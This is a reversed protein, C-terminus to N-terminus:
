NPVEQGYIVLALCNAGRLAKETVSGYVQRENGPRGHSCMVILDVKHSDASDIIWGVVGVEVAWSSPMRTIRIVLQVAPQLLYALLAAISTAQMMVIIFLTRTKNVWPGGM